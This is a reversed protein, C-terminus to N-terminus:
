ENEKNSHNLSDSSSIKLLGFKTGQYFAGNGDFLGAMQMANFPNGIREMMAEKQEQSLQDANPLVSYPDLKIIEKKVLDGTEFDLEAYAQQGNEDENIFHIRKSDKGMKPVSTTRVNKNFWVTKARKGDKNVDFRQIGTKLEGVEETAISSSPYEFGYTSAIIVSNGFAIPSNESGQEVDGEFALESAILKGNKSNYINLHTGETGSDLITLYEYGKKPGLFSPSSGTGWSLKGPKVRNGRDYDTQWLIKPQKSKLHLVYLSHTTAIAIGAPSSSISNAVIEDKRDSLSILSFKGTKPNLFGAQSDYSAFWINGKWDPTIAVFEFDDAATNLIFEEKISFEWGNETQSHAIRYITKGNALLLEDNENLYGYINNLARGAPLKFSAITEITEPNLLLLYPTRKISGDTSENRVCVVQLLDDSGMLLTPVAGNKTEFLFNLDGTPAKGTFVDSSLADDHMFATKTGAYPNKVQAMLTNFFLLLIPLVFVTKTKILSPKLLNM